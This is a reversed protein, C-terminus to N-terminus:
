PRSVALHGNITVEGGTKNIPLATVVGNVLLIGASVSFCHTQYFGSRAVTPCNIGNVFAAGYTNLHTIEVVVSSASANATYARYKGGNIVLPNNYGAPLFGYAYGNLSSVFGECNDFTGAKAICVGETTIVRFYSDRASINHVGNFVDVYCGNEGCYADLNLGVVDFNVGAFITNYTNGAPSIGVCPCNSFDIIVRKESDVKGGISFWQYASALSTGTGAFPATAGFYGHVNIKLRANPLWGAFRGTGANYEAVIESIAVNDNVGNCIYHNELDKTLVSLQNQVDTVADAVSGLGTGDISKYCVVVVESGATKTGTGGGGTGFTIVSRELTYDVGATQRFGNVYVDIIDVGLPDYQPIDFVVTSSATALVTRWTYQKFLTVSSLTDKKENFWADFAADLHEFFEDYGVPTTIWGCLDENPRTDTVKVSSASPAVLVSALILEHVGSATDKEPIAPSSAPTGTRYEIVASRASENANVRLVVADLRSYGGTPPTVYPLNYDADIEVWRGGCVAFGKGVTLQLGNASVHLDNLGSRRVGDRIFASFVRSYDDANYKRDYEGNRMFANFFGSKIAM